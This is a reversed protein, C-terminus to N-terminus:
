EGMVQIFVRRDRARDLELFFIRQWRGLQLSGDIVPITQSASALLSHKIHSHGNPFEFDEDVLNETRVTMDDHLYPGDKPVLAQVFEEFDKLFGSEKENIVVACTTHPSYVLAMGNSVGSREVIDVVDDTVDRFEMCRTTAFSHNEFLMKM